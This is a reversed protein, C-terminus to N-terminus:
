ADPTELAKRAINRCWSVFGDDTIDIIDRLAAELAVIRRKDAAIKDLADDREAITPAQAIPIVARATRKMREAQEDSLDSWSVPRDDEPMNTHLESLITWVVAEVLDDQPAPPQPRTNWTLMAAAPTVEWSSSGGCKRCTVWYEGSGSDQIWAWGKCFPCPLLADDRENTM